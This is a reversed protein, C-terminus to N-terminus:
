HTKGHRLDFTIEASFQVAPHDVLYPTLFRVLKEAMPSSSDTIESWASDGTAERLDLVKVKYLAVRGDGGHTVDIVEEEVTAACIKRGDSSYISYDRTPSQYHWAESTLYEGSEDDVARGHGRVYRISM